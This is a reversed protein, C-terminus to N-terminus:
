SVGLRVPVLVIRFGDIRVLRFPITVKKKHYDLDFYQAQAALFCFSLLCALWL